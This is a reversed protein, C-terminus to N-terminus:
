VIFYFYVSFKRYLLIFHEIVEDVSRNMNSLKNIDNTINKWSENNISQLPSFNYGSALSVKNELLKSLLLDEESSLWDDNLLNNKDFNDM